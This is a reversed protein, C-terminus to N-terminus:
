EEGALRSAIAAKVRKVTNPAVKCIGALKELSLNPNLRIEKAVKPYKAILQEDTLGTGKKRGKYVKIGQTEELAKAAKIGAAQKELINERDSQAICSLLGTVLEFYLNPTGNVISSINLQEVYVNVEKAKFYDLMTLIDSARRGFRDVSYIRVEKIQGSEIAEILKAGAPRDKFPITGTVKDTFVVEDPSTKEQSATNQNITSVRIYRAISKTKM